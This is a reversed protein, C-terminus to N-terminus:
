GGRLSEVFSVVERRVRDAHTHLLHHGSGELLVARSLPFRELHPLALHAPAVPDGAGLLALSPLRGLAADHDELRFRYLLHYATGRLAAESPGKGGGRLTPPLANGASRLAEPGVNLVDEDRRVEIGESANRYAESGNRLVEHLELASGFWPLNFLLLGDAAGQPLSSALAVALASGMSHGGLVLPRPFGERRVLDALPDLHDELTYGVEPKESDGHGLLDPLLLRFDGVGALPRTFYSHSGAMGHLLLLCGRHGPFVRYSLRDSARRSGDM